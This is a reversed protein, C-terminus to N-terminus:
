MVEPKKVNTKVNKGKKVSKNVEGPWLGTICRWIVMAASAGVCFGIGSGTTGHWWRSNVIEAFFGGTEVALWNEGILAGVFGCFFYVFWGVFKLTTNRDKSDKVSKYRPVGAFEAGCHECRRASDASWLKCKPCDKM